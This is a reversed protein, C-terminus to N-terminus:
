CKSVQLVIPGALLLPFQLCYGQEVYLLIIFLLLGRIRTTAAYFRDKYVLDISYDIDMANILSQDLMHLSLRHFM